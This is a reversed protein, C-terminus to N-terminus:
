ANGDCAGLTNFISQRAPRAYSIPGENSPRYLHPPPATSRSPFTYPIGLSVSPTNRILTAVSSTSTIPRLFSGAILFLHCPPTSEGHPAMKAMGASALETSFISGLVPSTLRTPSRPSAGSLHCPPNRPDSPIM